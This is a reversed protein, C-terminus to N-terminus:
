TCLVVQEHTFLSSKSILDRESSIKGTDTETRSASLTELVNALKGHEILLEIILQMWEMVPDAEVDKSDVSVEAFTTDVSSLLM